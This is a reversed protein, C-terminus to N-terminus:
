LIPKALEVTINFSISANLLGIDTSYVTVIFIEYFGSDLRDIDISNVFGHFLLKVPDFKLWYNGSTDIKL